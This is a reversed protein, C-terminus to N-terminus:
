VVLLVHAADISYVAIADQLCKHLIEWTPRPVPLEQARWPSGRLAGWHEIHVDTLLQDLENAVSELALMRIRDDVRHAGEAVSEEIWLDTFPEGSGGDCAARWGIAEKIPLRAVRHSRQDALDPVDSYKSNAIWTRFIIASLWCITFAMCQLSNCDWAPGASRHRARGSRCHSAETRPRRFVNISPIPTKTELSQPEFPPPLPALAVQLDAFMALHGWFHPCPVFIRLSRVTCPPPSFVLNLGDSLQIVQKLCAFAPTSHLSDALTKRDHATDPPWTWGLEDRTFAGFSRLFCPCESFGGQQVSRKQGCDRFSHRELGNGWLRGPLPRVSGRHNNRKRVLVIRDRRYRGPPTTAEQRDAPRVLFRHGAPCRDGGIEVPVTETFVTKSRYRKSLKGSGRDASDHRDYGLHETMEADLALVNKALQNLLGNPGMLEVGHEKAQALLQEALQKQDVEAAMPDLTETM